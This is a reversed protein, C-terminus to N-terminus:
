YTWELEGKKWNFRSTPVYSMGYRHRPEFGKIWMFMAYKVNNTRNGKDKRFPIRSVTEFKWYLPYDQFLGPEPGRVKTNIGFSRQIGHTYHSKLLFYLVGGTKLHKMSHRIFKEALRRDTKGEYIGFPPNGIIVDFKDIPSNWKLYDVPSFWEDYKDPRPMDQIEVGFISSDEWYDKFANGWVGNGAGPDM